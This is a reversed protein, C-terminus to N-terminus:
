HDRITDRSIIEGGFAQAFRDATDREAFWYAAPFCCPTVSSHQVIWGDEILGVQGWLPDHALISVNPNTQRFLLACHGCCFDWAPESGFPVSRWAHQSSVAKGCSVCQGPQSLAIAKTSAYRVGGWVREIRGEMELATIDRQITMRHVHFQEALANLSRVAGDKLSELIAERRQQSKM